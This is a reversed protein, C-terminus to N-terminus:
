SNRDISKIPYTPTRLNQHHIYGKKPSFTRSLWSEPTPLQTSFVAKLNTPKPPHHVFYYSLRPLGFVFKAWQYYPDKIQIMRFVIKQKTKSKMNYVIVVNDQRKPWMWVSFLCHSNSDSFIIMTFSLDDLCPSATRQCMQLWLFVATWQRNQLHYISYKEISTFIM